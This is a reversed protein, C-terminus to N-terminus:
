ARQIKGARICRTCVSLTKSSGNILVKVKKLNPIWVRRGKRNSHSVTNGSMRGKNCVDCVKAM